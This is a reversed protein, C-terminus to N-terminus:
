PKHIRFFVENPQTAYQRYKALDAAPVVQVDFGCSRLRSAYDNSSYIRIHDRQGFLASQRAADNISPEEITTPLAESFPVQMVAIGGRRLVRFIERMAGRDDPIHEMVHNAIVLDFSEDAFSLSMINEKRVKKDVARYNEPMLDCTIVRATRNIFDYINREPAFHLVDNGNLNQESLIAVILRERANSYCAPCFVNEGYGAVVANKALAEENVAHPRQPMFRSYTAACFSCTFGPGKYKRWSYKLKLLRLRRYRQQLPAYVGFARLTQRALAKM